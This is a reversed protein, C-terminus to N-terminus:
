RFYENTNKNKVGDKLIFWFKFLNRHDFINIKRLLQATSCYMNIMGRSERTCLTSLIDVNLDPLVAFSCNTIFFILLDLSCFSQFALIGYLLEFTDFM